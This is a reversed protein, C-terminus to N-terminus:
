HEAVAQRLRERQGPTTMDREIVVRVIRAVFDYGRPDAVLWRQWELEDLAGTLSEGALGAARGLVAAPVRGGHVAAAALVRQADAPLRRFGVRIAGVVADPLDGPMTQDLTRLPAPWAGEEGRLDLGLAVAHLLEVALLPLGASDALVRRTLRDLADDDYDPLVRRALDRVADRGLPGVRVRAGAVDRGLRARLDDIEPPPPETAALAILVPAAALDRLAGELALLSDRDLWQADDLAIVVPQEEAAARLIDSLARAAPEPAVGRAVAFRDGWEPDRAAFAALSAAPAGAIGRAELLGGRALAFVGAGADAADGQVARTAAVAGGDLRARAVLEELLRTRGAGMDGTVLCLTARPAARCQGWAELLRGLEAERGVLPARRSDRRASAARGATGDSVRWVRERRVRDALRETEAEPAAGVEARLTDGLTDYVALAGARDGALARCRMLARAAADSTPGLAAAREAAAAAGALDGAALLTEAQRVLAEVARRRWTAREGALWTEFDSADAVGFGELFEGAVLAAAGAWDGAAARADFEDCDLRLGAGALRVAGGKTELAGGGLHRRLVRLAESLSHRAATEPRDGWLLGVLHERSRSHRPSRALYVLLALNKRWLLDSPAAAGDVTVEIAGLARLAVVPM